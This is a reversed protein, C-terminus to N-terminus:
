SSSGQGHRHQHRHRHRRGHGGDHGGDHGGHGACAHGIAMPEVEGRRVAEVIDGVTRQRADLVRIGAHEVADLARRGIGAAALMQVHHASLIDLHHCAGPRHGCAPNRVTHLEGSGLDVMTFFPATGFHGAIEAALGHDTTTPICLKM